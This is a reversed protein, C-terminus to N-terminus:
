RDNVEQTREDQGGEHTAPPSVSRARRKLWTREQKQRANMALLILRDGAIRTRKTPELNRVFASAREFFEESVRIVIRRTKM